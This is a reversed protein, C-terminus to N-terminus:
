PFRAEMFDFVKTRWGMVGFPIKETTFELSKKTKRVGTRLSNHGRRLVITEIEFLTYNFRLVKNLEYDYNESDGIIKKTLFIKCEGEAINLRHKATYSGRGKKNPFFWVGTEDKENESLNHAFLEPCIDAKIAPNRNRKKITRM